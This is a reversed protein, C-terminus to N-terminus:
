FEHRVRMVFGISLLTIMVIQVGNLPVSESSEPVDDPDNPQITQGDTGNEDTSDTGDDTGSGGTPTGGGGSPSGTNEDTENENSEEPEVITVTHKDSVSVVNLEGNEVVESEYVVGYLRYEGPEYDASISAVYEGDSTENAEIRHQTSGNAFVAEVREIAPADIDDHKTTEIYISASEDETVKSPSSLTTEYATIVVPQITEFEGTSVVVSYTGPDLDTTEFTTTTEGNVGLERGDPVGNSNYLFVDYPDDGSASVRVDIAEGPEVPAISTITFEQGAIETTRAPVDVEGNEVTITFDGDVHAVGPSVAVLATIFLLAVIAPRLM